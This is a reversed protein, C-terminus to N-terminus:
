TRPTPSHIADRVQEWGASQFEDTLGSGNVSPFHFTAPTQGARSQLVLRLGEEVLARLTSGERQAAKRSRRFLDDSIEITTKMHTVWIGLIPWIYAGSVPLPLLGTGEVKTM